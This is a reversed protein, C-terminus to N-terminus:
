FRVRGAAGGLGPGLWPAVTVQEADNDGDATLLFILGLAAGVAAVGLGIDALLNYTGLSSVDDDTCYSGADAGCTEALDGDEITSLTAFLGFAILGAGGVAFSAIATVPAGGGDLAPPPAVAEDGGEAESAAAEAARRRQEELRERISELRAELLERREGAHALYRELHDAAEELRGLREHTLYLNYLLAPRGSLEYAAEFEVLAEEYHGREFHNRAAAFHAQAEGENLEEPAQGQGGGALTGEQAHAAGSTGAVALACALPLAVRNMVSEM